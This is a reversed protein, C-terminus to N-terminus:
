IYGNGLAAVSVSIPGRFESNRILMPVASWGQGDFYNAYVGYIYRWVVMFSSGNGAVSYHYSEIGPQLSSAGGITNNEKHDVEAPNSWKENSRVSAFVGIVSKISQLWISLLQNDGNSIITPLTSSSLHQKKSLNKSEGWTVNYRKIKPIIRDDLGSGLDSIWYVFYQNSFSSIGVSNTIAFAGITKQNINTEAFGDDVWGKGPVYRSARTQLFFSDSSRDLRQWVTLYGSGNSHTIPDRYYRGESDIVAADADWSIGNHSKSYITGNEKWVSMYNKGNSVLEFPLFTRGVEPTIDMTGQWGPVDGFIFTNAVIKSKMILSDYSNWAM